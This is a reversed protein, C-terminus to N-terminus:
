HPVTPEYFRPLPAPIDIGRRGASEAAYAGDGDSRVEPTIAIWLPLDTRLADAIMSLEALREPSPMVDVDDRSSVIPTLRVSLSAVHARGLTDKRITGSVHSHLDILTAGGQHVARILAGALCAGVASGLLHVPSPGWSRGHPPCEDLGLVAVGPLRFDVIQQYDRYHYVTLAFESGLDTAPPSLPRAPLTAPPITM